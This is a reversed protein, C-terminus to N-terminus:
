GITDSDEENSKKAHCSCLCKVIYKGTLSDIYKGNCENHNSTLCITIRAVELTYNELRSINIPNSFSSNTGDNHFSKIEQNHKYSDM